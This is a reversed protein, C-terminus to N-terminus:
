TTTGWFRYSSNKISKYIDQIVDLSIGDSFPVYEPEGTIPNSEPIKATANKAPDVKIRIGDPEPKVTKLGIIKYTVTCQEPDSSEIVKLSKNKAHHNINVILKDWDRRSIVRRYVTIEAFPPDAETEPFSKLLWGRGSRSPGTM